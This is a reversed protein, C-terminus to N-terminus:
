SVSALLGVADLDINLSQPETARNGLLLLVELEWMFTFTLVRAHTGNGAEDLVRDIHSQGWEWLDFAEKWLSLGEAAYLAFV